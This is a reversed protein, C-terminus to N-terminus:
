NKYFKITFITYEGEKSRVSIDGCSMDIIKKTMNLGIGISENSSNKSKYFREFIHNIDKKSIGKGNDKISVETYIPNDLCTINICGGNPTHEYANKIVNTLAESVWNSDVNISTKKDCDVKITINKLEIPVRVPDISKDLLKYLNTKKNQLKITGSDLMSIKLLSKVLWEIRELSKYERNLFDMRTDKDLDTRLLDNIVYMSTLPTKLQHSIDSLTTELEKKAKKSLDRQEKLKITVKYIDNKLNSLSGEDYDRIDLNYNGSLIEHLYLNLEKLKKDQKRKDYFYIGVFLLFTIVIMMTNNIILDQKLAANDNLYKFSHADIGLEQLKTTDGNPESLIIKIVEDTLEPHETLLNNVIHANYSEIEKEYQNYIDISFTISFIIFTLFVLLYTLLVKKNKM